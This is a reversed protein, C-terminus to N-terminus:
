VKRIKLFYLLSILDRRQRHTHTDGKNNSPLFGRTTALCRNPLFGRITALCRSPLFTVATVFVCAAISSINSAGNEIHGTDYWPFYAILEEWFKKHKNQTVTLIDFYVPDSWLIKSTHHIPFSKSPLPQPRFSTSGRCKDPLVSSLWSFHM